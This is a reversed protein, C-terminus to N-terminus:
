GPDARAGPGWIYLQSFAIIMMIKASTLIASRMAGPMERMTGFGVIFLGILLGYAVAM